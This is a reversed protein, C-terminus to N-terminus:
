LTLSVSALSTSASSIPQILTAYSAAPFYSGPMGQVTAFARGDRYAGRVVVMCWSWAGRVTLPAETGWRSSGSREGSNESTTPSKLIM